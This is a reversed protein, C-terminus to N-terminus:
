ITDLIDAIRKKVPNIEFWGIPKDFALIHVEEFGKFMREELVKRIAQNDRADSLRYYKKEWVEVEQKKPRGRKKESM